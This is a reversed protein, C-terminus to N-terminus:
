KDGEKLLPCSRKKRCARWTVHKEAQEEYYEAKATDREIIRRTKTAMEFLVHFPDLEADCAQCTVKRSAEFVCVKAHSCDNYKRRKVELPQNKFDVQIINEDPM